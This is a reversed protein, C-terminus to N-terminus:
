GIKSGNLIEQDPNLFILKGDPNQIMLIMGKSEIGKLNRAKLNALYCVQRGTVEEPGYQHGIGAVVTRKENGLDLMLKLLKDTKPIREASLIKAIRIDTKSFEEFSIEQKIDSIVQNEPLSQKSRHLKEVQFEIDKDEIKDFLLEPKSLQLNETLLDIRVSNEWKLVSEDLNLMRIIKRSSFPLFPEMVVTMADIMQLSLHLVSSVRKEDTKIKHWPEEETLFKNGLRAINMLEAQAERFHFNELLDTIKPIIEKMESIRDKLGPHFLVPMKGEFHKHTLVMV